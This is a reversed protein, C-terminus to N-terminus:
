RGWREYEGLTAGDLQLWLSRPLPRVATGLYGYGRGTWRMLGARSFSPSFRALDTVDAKM